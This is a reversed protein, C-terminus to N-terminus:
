RSNHATLLPIWRLISFVLTQRLISLFHSDTPFLTRNPAPGACHLLTSGRTKTTLQIREWDCNLPRSQLEAITHKLCIILPLMNILGSVESKLCKLLPSSTYSNAFATPWRCHQFNQLAAVSKCHYFYDNCPYRPPLNLTGIAIFGSYFGRRGVSHHSSQGWPRVFHKSSYFLRMDRAPVSGFNRLLGAQPGPETRFKLDHSYLAPANPQAWFMHVAGWLMLSDACLRHGSKHVEYGSSQSFLFNARWLSNPYWFQHTQKPKWKCLCQTANTLVIRDLGLKNWFETCRTNTKLKALCLALKTSCTL